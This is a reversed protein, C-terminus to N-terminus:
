SVENEATIIQPMEYWDYNLLESPDKFWCYAASTVMISEIETPFLSVLLVKKEQGCAFGCEWAFGDQNNAKGCSLAVVIDSDNLADVDMGYVALGWNHNTLDWANPLKHEHPVFVEHGADRLKGAITAIVAQAAQSKSKEQYAFSAALYIKM